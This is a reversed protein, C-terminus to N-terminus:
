KKNLPESPIPDFGVRPAQSRKKLFEDMPDAKEKKGIKLRSRSSPSMGFEVLYAKEVKVWEAMKSLAPNAKLKNGVVADSIIVPEEIITGYRDVEKQLLEVMASARALEGLMPGDVMTLLGLADFERAYRKFFRRAAKPLGKPIEPMGPTFEPESDNLPRKGANGTLRKIATPLPRRGSAGNGAMFNLSGDSGQRQEAEPNSLSPM